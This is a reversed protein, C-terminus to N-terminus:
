ATEAHQTRLVSGAGSLILLLPGGIGVILGSLGITVAAGIHSTSWGVVASAILSGLVVMAAWTAYVRGRLEDEVAEALFSQYSIVAWADTFGLLFFLIFIFWTPPTFMVPVIFLPGLYGVIMLRARGFSAEVRHAILAGIVAGASISAVLLSYVTGARDGLNMEEETLVVTAISLSAAILSWLAETGTIARVVRIQWVTRLGDIFDRWASTFFSGAPRLITNPIHLRYLFMFSGLYVLTEIAFAPRAGVVSFIGGGAAPGVIRIISWSVQSLSLAPVLDEPPVLTPVTALEAPRAFASAVSVLVAIVAVQWVESAFCMIALLAARTLDCTLMIRRRNFRDAVVGTIPSVALQAARQMAFVFGLLGASQTLNYVFLPLVVQSLSDSVSACLQSFWLM